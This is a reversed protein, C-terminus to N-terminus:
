ALTREQVLPTKSTQRAVINTDESWKIHNFRFATYANAKAHLYLRVLGEWFM